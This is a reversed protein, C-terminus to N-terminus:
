QCVIYLMYCTEPSISLLTSMTYIDHGSAIAFRCGLNRHCSHLQWLTANSNNCSKAQCRTTRLDPGFASIMPAHHNRGCVIINVNM